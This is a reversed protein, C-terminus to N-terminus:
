HMCFFSQLSLVPALRCLPRVLVPRLRRWLLGGPRRGPDGARHDDADFTPARQMSYNSITLPYKCKFLMQTERGLNVEFAEMIFIFAGAIYQEGTILSLSIIAPEQCPGPSHVAHCTPPLHLLRPGFVGEESVARGAAVFITRWGTVVRGAIEKTCSHM